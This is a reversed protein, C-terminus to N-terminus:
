SGFVEHWKRRIEDKHSSVLEEARALERVKLGEAYALSLPVIWFKAYGGARRVHVHMPEHSENAYFFFVYGEERFVEPM